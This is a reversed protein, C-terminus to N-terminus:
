RYVHLNSPIGRVGLCFLRTRQPTQAHKYQTINQRKKFTVKIKRSYKGDIILFVLVSNYSTECELFLGCVEFLCIVDFLWHQTFCCYLETM